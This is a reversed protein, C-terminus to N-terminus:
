LDGATGKAELNFAFGMRSTGKGSTELHTQEVQEGTQLLFDRFNKKSNNM